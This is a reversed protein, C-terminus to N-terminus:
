ACVNALAQATLTKSLCRNSQQHRVLLVPPLLCKLGEEFLPEGFYSRVLAHLRRASARPEHGAIDPRKAALKRQIKQFTEEYQPRRIGTGHIFILTTM